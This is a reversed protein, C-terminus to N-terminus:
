SQGLTYGLAIVGSIVAVVPPPISQAARAAGDFVIGVTARLTRAAWVVADGFDYSVRLPSKGMRRMITTLLYEPLLMLGALAAIGDEIPGTLSHLVFPLVWRVVVCALVVSLVLRTFAALVAEGVTATLNSTPRDATRM